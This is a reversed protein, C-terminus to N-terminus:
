IMVEAIGECFPFFHCPELVPLETYFSAFGHIHLVVQLVLCKISFFVCYIPVTVSPELVHYIIIMKFCCSKLCIGVEILPALNGQFEVIHSLTMLALLAIAEKMACLSLVPKLAGDALAAIM